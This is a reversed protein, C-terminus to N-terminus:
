SNPKGKRKPAPRDDDDTDSAFMGVRPRGHDTHYRLALAVLFASCAEKNKNYIADNDGEM